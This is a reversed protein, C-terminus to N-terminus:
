YCGCDCNSKKLDQIVTETLEQAAIFDTEVLTPIYDLRERISRLFPIEVGKGIKAAAKLYGCELSCLIATRKFYTDTCSDVKFEFVGPPVCQGLDLHLPTGVKVNYSKNEGSPFKIAVTYEPISTYEPGTQWTSRDIYLLDSCKGALDFDYTGRICSCAM